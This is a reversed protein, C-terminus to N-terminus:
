IVDDTGIRRLFRRSPGREFGEPTIEAVPRLKLYDDGVRHEVDIIRTGTRKENIWHPGTSDHDPLGWDTPTEHTAGESQLAHRGGVLESLRRLTSSQGTAGTTQNREGGVVVDIPLRVGGAITCWNADDGQSLKDVGELTGLMERGDPLRIVFNNIRHRRNWFFRRPIAWTQRGVIDARLVSPWITRDDLEQGSGAAGILRVVPPQQQRPRNEYSLTHAVAREVLRSMASWYVSPNVDSMILKDNRTLVIMMSRLNPMSCPVSTDSDAAAGDQDGQGDLLVARCLSGLHIKVHALRPLMGRLLTCVHAGPPGCDATIGSGRLGASPQEGARTELELCTCSPPLSDLLHHVAETAITCHKSAFLSFVALRRMRSLLPTLSTLRATLRSHHPGLPESLPRLSLDNGGATLLTLALVHGAYRDINFGEIFRPLRQADLAITAYLLPTATDHWLRSVLICPLLAGQRNQDLFKTQLLINELILQPLGDM